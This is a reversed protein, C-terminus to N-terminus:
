GANEVGQIKAKIMRWALIGVIVWGLVPLAAATPSQVMREAAANIRSLWRM